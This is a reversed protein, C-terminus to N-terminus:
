WLEAMDRWIKVPESEFPPKTGDDMLAINVAWKRYIWLTGGYRANFVLQGWQGAQLTFLTKNEPTHRPPAGLSFTYHFRVQLTEDRYLLDVGPSEILPKTPQTLDRKTNPNRFANNEHFEIDDTLLLVKDDLSLPPFPDVPWADPVSNRLTALPAGRSAKTWETVISQRYILM